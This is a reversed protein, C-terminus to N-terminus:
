RRQNNRQTLLQTLLWRLLPTASLLLWDNGRTASAIASASTIIIAITVGLKLFPPRKISAAELTNSATVASIAAVRSIAGITIASIIAAASGTAIAITVGGGEERRAAMRPIAVHREISIITDTATHMSTVLRCRIGIVANAATHM